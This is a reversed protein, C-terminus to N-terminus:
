KQARHQPHQSAREVSAFFPSKRGSPELQLMNKSAKIDGQNRNKIESPSKSSADTEM